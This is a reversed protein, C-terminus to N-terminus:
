LLAALSKKFGESCLSTDSEHLGRARELIASRREAFHRKVIHDFDVPPTRLVRLMLHYSSLAVSENYRQSRLGGQPTDREREFGPENYYPETNLVLGLISVLVQLLNSREPSWTESDGM